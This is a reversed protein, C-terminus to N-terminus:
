LPGYLIASNLKNEASNFFEIQYEVFEKKAVKGDGDADMAHFSNKAHEPSIGMASNHVKWEKLSIFGDGNADLCAFMQNLINQNVKPANISIWHQEFEEYPLQVSEDILGLNDCFGLIIKSLLQFKEAPMETLKKYRELVLEYDGRSICGSKNADRSIVAKRFKKKWFDSKQLEASDM